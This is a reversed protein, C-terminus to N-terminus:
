CDDGSVEQEEEIRFGRLRGPSVRQLREGCGVCVWSPRERTAREAVDARMSGGRRVARGQRRREVPFGIIQASSRM